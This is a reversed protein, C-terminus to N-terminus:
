IYVQLESSVGGTLSTYDDSVCASVLSSKGVGSDGLLLVRILKEKHKQAKETM